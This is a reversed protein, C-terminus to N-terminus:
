QVSIDVRWLDAGSGYYLMGNSSAWIARTSHLTEHRDDLISPHRAVIRISHDEPDIAFVIGKMLGVILGRPGCPQKALRYRGPLGHNEPLDGIRLIERGVPDFVFYKEDTLGYILGDNGGMVRYRSAGPLIAQKWVIEETDTDWLFVVADDRVPIAGTSGQITTGGFLWNTRPVPVLTTPTLNELFGTWVRWSFDNPDVRLIGGDLHGKVPQLPGYIREDPGIVLWPLREQGHAEHLAAIRTIRATEPELFDIHAGLYSSLFIGRPHILTAEVQTNPQVLHGWDKAERADLDFTWTRAPSWGGGWLRGSEDVGGISFILVGRGRLDTPVRHETGTGRDFVVLNGLPDVKRFERGDMTIQSRDDRPAPLNEVFEIRNRLCRFKQGFAKGYVQGDEALFLDVYGQQQMMNEPLIQRREGTNPDCAWLEAHHLGVPVYVVNDDSVAPRIIYKLREDDSIRGIHQIEDTRTDVAVLHTAPYSGVYFRGDPGFAHGLIYRAPSAPRGLDILQHEDVDYKFFRAAHGAYIYLHGSVGRAIRIQSSRRYRSLDLEITKGSEVGVGVVAFRDPDTLTGWAVVEGRGNKTVAEIPVPNAQMPPGLNEFRSDEESATAAAVALFTLALFFTPGPSRSITKM